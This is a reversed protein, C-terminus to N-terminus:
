GEIKGYFFMILQRIKSKDRFHTLDLYYPMNDYYTNLKNLAEIKKM